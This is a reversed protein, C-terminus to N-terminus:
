VRRARCPLQWLRLLGRYGPIPRAIVETDNPQRLTSGFAISQLTSGIHHLSDEHPRTIEPDRGAPERSSGEVRNGIDGPDCDAMARRNLTVVDAGANSNDDGM